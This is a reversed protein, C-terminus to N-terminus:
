GRKLAESVKTAPDDRRAAWTDWSVGLAKAIQYQALGEGALREVEAPDLQIAM